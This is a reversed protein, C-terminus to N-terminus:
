SMQRFNLFSQINNKENEAISQIVWEMNNSLVVFTIIVIQSLSSLLLEICLIYKLDIYLLIKM